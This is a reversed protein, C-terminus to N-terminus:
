PGWMLFLRLPLLPPPNQAETHKHQDVGEGRRYVHGQEQLHVKDKVLVLANPQVLWPWVNVQLPFCGRRHIDDVVSCGTLCCMETLLQALVDQM